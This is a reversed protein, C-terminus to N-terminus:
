EVMHFTSWFRMTLVSVFQWSLLVGLGVIALLYVIALLLFSNVSTNWRYVYKQETVMLILHIAPVLNVSVM